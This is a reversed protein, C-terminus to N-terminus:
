HISLKIHSVESVCEQVTERVDQEAQARLNNDKVYRRVSRESLGRQILTVYQLYCFKRQKIKPTLINESLMPLAFFLCPYNFIKHKVLNLSKSLAIALYSHLDSCVTVCM